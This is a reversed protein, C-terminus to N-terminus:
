NKIKHLFPCNCYKKQKKRFLENYLHIAIVISM